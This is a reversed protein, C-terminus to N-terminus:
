NQIIIELLRLNGVQTPFQAAFYINRQQRFNCFNVLLM